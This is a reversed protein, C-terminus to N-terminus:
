PQKRWMIPSPRGSIAADYCLGFRAAALKNSFRFVYGARAHADYLAEASFEAGAIRFAARRCVTLILEFRHDGLNERTLHPLCVAVTQADHPLHPQLSTRREAIRRFVDEFM